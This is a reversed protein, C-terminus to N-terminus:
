ILGREAVVKLSVRERVTGGSKADAIIEIVYTGPVATEELTGTFTVIRVEGPKLTFTAREPKMVSLGETEVVDVSVTETSNGINEVSAEISASTRKSLSIQAPNVNGKLRINHATGVTCGIFMFVAALAILGKVKM